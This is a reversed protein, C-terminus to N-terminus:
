VHCKRQMYPQREYMMKIKALVRNAPPGFFQFRSQYFEKKEGSEFRVVLYSTGIVRLVVANKGVLYNNINSTCYTMVVIDGEMFKSM